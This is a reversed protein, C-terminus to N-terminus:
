PSPEPVLVASEPGVYEALKQEFDSVLDANFSRVSEVIAEQTQNITQVRVPLNPNAPDLQVSPLVPWDADAVLPYGPLTTPNKLQGLYELMEASFGYGQIMAELYYSKSAELDQAARFAVGAEAAATRAAATEADVDTVVWVQSWTAGGDTTVPTAENLDQTLSNVPPAPTRAVPFMNYGALLADTPNAPFSTNSNDRRLMGLNYPYTIVTSAGDSLLYAM